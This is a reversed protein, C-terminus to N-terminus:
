GSRVAEPPWSTTARIRTPFTIAYRHRAGALTTSGTTPTPALQLQVLWPWVDHVPAEISVSRWVVLSPDELYADCPFRARTEDATTGWVEGSV